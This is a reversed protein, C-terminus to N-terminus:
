WDSLREPRLTFQLEKYPLKVYAIMTFSKINGRLGALRTEDRRQRDRTVGTLPPVGCGGGPLVLFSGPIVRMITHIHSALAGAASAHPTAPVASAARRAAPESSILPRALAARMSCAAMTM